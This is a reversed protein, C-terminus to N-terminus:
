ATKDEKTPEKNNRSNLAELVCLDLSENQTKRIFENEDMASFNLSLM